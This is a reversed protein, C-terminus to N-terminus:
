DSTKRRGKPRITVDNRKLTNIICSVSVSFKEAITKAGVGETYLRCVENAHETLKYPAGRKKTSADASKTASQKPTTQVTTENTENNMTKNIERVKSQKPKEVYQTPATPASESKSVYLKSEKMYEKMWEESPIDSSAEVIVATDEEDVEEDIEEDIEESLSDEFGEDTMIEEEEEEEAEQNLYEELSDADVNNPDFEGEQHLHEKFRYPDVDNPNFKENPDPMPNNGENVKINKDDFEGNLIRDILSM